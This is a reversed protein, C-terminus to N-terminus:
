NCKFNASNITYPLQFAVFELLSFSFYAANYFVYLSRYQSFADRSSSAIRPELVADDLEKPLRKSRVFPTLRDLNYRFGQDYLNRVCLCSNDAGKSVLLEYIDPKDLILAQQLAEYVATVKDSEDEKGLLEMILDARGWEVAFSLKQALGSHAHHTLISQLIAKDMNTTDYENPNFITILDKKSQIEEMWDIHQRRQEPKVSEIFDEWEKPKHEGYPANKLYSAMADCARGSGDVIIIPFGKRAGEAVTQLTGPGGNVTILVLPVQWENSVFEELDSRFQLEEWWDNVGSEVLVFHTHDPNLSAGNNDNPKKPSYDVSGGNLIEHHNIKLYTAVGICTVDSDLRRVADGVFQNVGTSTGGTVIWATATHAAQVLGRSFVQELKSLMKFDPAGGTVSFLAKPRELQWQEELFTHAFNEVPYSKPIICYKAPNKKGQGVFNIEGNPYYAVDAGNGLAHPSSSGAEPHAM